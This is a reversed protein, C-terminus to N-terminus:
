FISLKVVAFVLLVLYPLAMLGPVLREVKWHTIYRRLSDGEGLEAWERTYCSYTLQKEMNHIVTYKGKNLQKYSYINFFWLVCLGLGVVAILVMGGLRVATLDSLDIVIPMAVLVATLLSVFFRNTRLRRNSVENSTDAYFKYLELLEDDANSEQNTM